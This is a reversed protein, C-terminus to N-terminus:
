TGRDHRKFWEALAAIGEAQGEGGAVKGLIGEGGHMLMLKLKEGDTTRLELKIASQDLIVNGVSLWGGGAGGAKASAIREPPLSIPEGDPNGRRDLPQVILRQETVGLAVSRGKFTSQQSAACIGRLEEGGELLGELAPRLKSDFDAM